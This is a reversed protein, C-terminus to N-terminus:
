TCGWTWASVRCPDCWFANAVGGSGWDLFPRGYETEGDLPLGSDLSLLHMMPRKCRLCPPFVKDQVFVPFGGLRFRSQGRYNEGWGQFRLEPPTPVLQVHAPRIPAPPKRGEWGYCSVHAEFTGDPEHVYYSASNEDEVADLGIVLTLRPLTVGLDAPVPHLTLVRQLTIPLGEDSKGPVAGGIAHLPAAADDQITFPAGSDYELKYDAPFALHYVARPWLRRLAGNELEFGYKELRYAARSREPESTAALVRAVHPEADPDLLLLYGAATWREPETPDALLRRLGAVSAERDVALMGLTRQFGIGWRVLEYANHTFTEPEQRVWAEVFSQAGRHEASSQPDPRARFLAEVAALWWARPFAHLVDKYPYSFDHPAVAKATVYAAVEDPTFLAPATETKEYRVASFRREFDKLDFPRAPATM